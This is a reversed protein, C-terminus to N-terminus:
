GEVDKETKVQTIAQGLIKEVREKEDMMAKVKLDKATVYRPVGLYEIAWQYHCKPNPCTTYLWQRERYGRVRWGADHSYGEIGRTLTTGCFKCTKGKIAREYDALTPVLENPEKKASGVSRSKPKDDPMLRTRRNKKDEEAMRMLEIHDERTLNKTIRIPFLGLKLGFKEDLNLGNYIKKLEAKSHNKEVM